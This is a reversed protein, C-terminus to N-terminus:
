HAYRAPASPAGPIGSWINRWIAFFMRLEVSVPMSNGMYVKVRHVGGSNPRILGIEYVWLHIEAQPAAILARLNAFATLQRTDFVNNKM